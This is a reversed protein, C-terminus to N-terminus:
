RSAIYKRVLGLKPRRGKWDSPVANEEGTQRNIIQPLWVEIRSGRAMAALAREAVNPGLKMEYAHIGEKLKNITVWEGKTHAELWNCVANAFQADPNVGENPRFKARLAAQNAALGQLRELDQGYLVPRGDISAYITAIRTCIEVARGLGGSKKNWDAIVEYVSGDVKVPVPKWRYDTAVTARPFPRYSWKLDPHYGFLFRDYLGGLSDAGFVADFDDEVIGGIFSLSNNLRVEGVRNGVEFLQKRRYFTTTMFTTFSSNPVGAKTFLFAWEDPNILFGEKLNPLNKKLHKLMMETSGFKGELYRPGQEEKYINLAKCGWEIVQSKGGHVPAVIATYLNVMPDDGVLIMSKNEEQLQANGEPNSSADTPPTWMPVRVSAATVLSPLAVGLPFSNPLFLEAYLDGLVTSAMASDPMVLQNDTAPLYPNPVAVVIHRIPNRRSSLKIADISLVERLSEATIAELDFYQIAWGVTSKIMEYLDSQGFLVIVDYQNLDHSPADHVDIANYGAARASSADEATPFILLIAEDAIAGTTPITAPIIENKPEEYNSVLGTQNEHSFIIESSKGFVLRHGVKQEMWA